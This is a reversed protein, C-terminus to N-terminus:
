KSHLLSLKSLALIFHLIFHAKFAQETFHESPGFVTFPSTRSQGNVRLPPPLPPARADPNSYTVRQQITGFQVSKRKSHIKVFNMRHTVPGFGFVNTSKKEERGGRGGGGEGCGETQKHLQEGFWVESSGLQFRQLLCSCCASCPQVAGM